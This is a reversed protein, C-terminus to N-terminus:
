IAVADGVPQAALLRCLFRSKECRADTAAAAVGLLIASRRRAAPVAAAAVVVASIASAVRALCRWRRGPGVVCATAKLIYPRSVRAVWAAAHLVGAVDALM